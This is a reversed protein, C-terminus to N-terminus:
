RRLGVQHQVRRGRRPRQDQYKGFLEIENTLSTVTILHTSFDIGGRVGRVKAEVFSRCKDTSFSCAPASCSSRDKRLCESNTKKKPFYPMYVSIARIQPRANVAGSQNMSGGGFSGNKDQNQFFPMAAHLAEQTKTLSTLVCNKLKWRNVHFQLVKTSLLLSTLSSLNRQKYLQYCNPHPHNYSISTCGPLKYSIVKSKKKKKKMKIGYWVMKICYIM